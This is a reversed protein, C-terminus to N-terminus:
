AFLYFIFHEWTTLWSQADNTVLGSVSFAISVTFFTSFVGWRLFM